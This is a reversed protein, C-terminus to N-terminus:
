KDLLVQNISAILKSLAKEYAEQLVEKATGYGWMNFRETTEAIDWSGLIEGTEISLSAKIDIERHWKAFTFFSKYEIVDVTLIYAYDSSANEQALLQMLQTYARSCMDDAHKNLRYDVINIKTSNAPLNKLTLDTKIPQPTAYKVTSCNTILFVISFIAFLFFYINIKEYM